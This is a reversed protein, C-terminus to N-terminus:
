FCIFLDFSTLSVRRSTSGEPLPSRNWNDVVQCHGHPSGSYMDLAWRYGDYEFWPRHEFYSYTVHMDKKDIHIWVMQLPDDFNFHSKTEPTTMEVTVILKSGNWGETVTVDYPWFNPDYPPPPLATNGDTSPIV